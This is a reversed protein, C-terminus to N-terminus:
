LQVMKSELLFMTKLLFIAANLDEPLKKLVELCSVIRNLFPPFYKMWNAKFLAGMLQGLVKRSVSTTGGSKSALRVIPGSVKTHAPVSM